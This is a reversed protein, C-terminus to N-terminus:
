NLKSWKAFFLIKFFKLKKVKKSFIYYCWEINIDLVIVMQTNIILFVFFKGM